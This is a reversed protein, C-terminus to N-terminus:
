QLNRIRCIVVDIGGQMLDQIWVHQNDQLTDTPGKVEALKFRLKDRDYLILDPLGGNRKKQTALVKCIASVSQQGMCCVLDSLFELSHHWQLGYAMKSQLEKYRESLLNLIVGLSEQLLELRADISEKRNLYFMETHFDVPESHYKNIFAGKVNADFIIDHFLLSFIMRLPGGECHLGAPWGLIYYQELAAQEVTIGYQSIQAIILHHEDNLQPSDYDYLVSRWRTKQGQSQEKLQEITFDDYIIELEVPPNSVISQEVKLRKEIRGIRDLISKMFILDVNDDSLSGQALELTCKLREVKIAKSDGETQSPSQHNIHHEQLLLIRDWLYGRREKCTHECILLSQILEFEMQFKKEKALSRSLYCLAKSLIMVPNYLYLHIGNVVVQQQDVYGVVESWYLQVTEWCQVLQEYHTNLEAFKKEHFLRDCEGYVRLYQEFLQLHQLNIFVTGINLQYRVFRRRNMMVLIEDRMTAELQEVQNYGFYALHVQRIDRRVSSKLMVVRGIMQLVQKRLLSSINSSKDSFLRKQSLTSDILNQIRASKVGGSRKSKQCFTKEVQKIQDLTLLDLLEQLSLSEQYDQNVINNLHYQDLPGLICSKSQGTSANLQVGSQYSALDEETLLLGESHLQNIALDLDIIESYDISSYKIWGDKRMYLRILLKLADQSLNLYRALMNFDFIGFTKAQELIEVFIQLYSRREAPVDQDDEVILETQKQKYISLIQLVQDDTLM